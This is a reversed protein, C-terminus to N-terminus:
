DAMKMEQKILILSIQAPKDIAYLFKIKLLVVAILVCPEWKLGVVSTEQIEMATLDVLILLQLVASHEVIM